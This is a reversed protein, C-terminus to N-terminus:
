LVRREHGDEVWVHLHPRREGSVVDGGLLGVARCCGGCASPIGQNWLSLRAPCSVTAETHRLDRVFLLPQLRMLSM